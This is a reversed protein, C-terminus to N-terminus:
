CSTALATDRFEADNLVARSVPGAMAPTSMAQIPVPGTKRRLAALKAATGSDKHRIRLASRAGSTGNVRLL